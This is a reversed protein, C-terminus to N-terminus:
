RAWMPLHWFLVLQNDYYVEGARGVQTGAPLDFHAHTHFSYPLVRVDFGGAALTYGILWQQRAPHALHRGIDDWRPQYADLLRRFTARKAVMVGVNFCLGQLTVRGWADLFAGDSVKPHLKFLAEHLLTEHPGMNYSTGLAGAPWAELAALEQPEFPRQLFIDGDTFIVTDTDDGPVVDLWTGHQLSCTERPSGMLQAAGARVTQVKSFTGLYDPPDCDVCVLWTKISAPSHISLTALYPQIKDLYGATAGTVIHVTM